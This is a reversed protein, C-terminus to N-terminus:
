ATMNPSSIPKRSKTTSPSARITMLFSLDSEASLDTTPLMILSIWLFLNLKTLKDKSYVERFVFSIVCAKSAQSYLRVLEDMTLSWLLSKFRYFLTM